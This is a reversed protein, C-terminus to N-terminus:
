ARALALQHDSTYQLHVPFPACNCVARLRLALLIFYLLDTPSFRKVIRTLYLTRFILYMVDTFNQGCHGLNSM